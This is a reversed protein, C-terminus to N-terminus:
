KMGPFSSSEKPKKPGIGIRQFRLTARFLPIYQPSIVVGFTSEIFAALEEPTADGIEAVARRFAEIKTM